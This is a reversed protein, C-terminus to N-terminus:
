FGIWTFKSPLYRTVYRVISINACTGVQSARGQATPSVQYICSFSWVVEAGFYSLWVLNISINDTTEVNNNTCQQFFSRGWTFIPREGNKNLDDNRTCTAIGFGNHFQVVFFSLPPIGKRRGLFKNRYCREKLLWLVFTRNTRKVWMEVLWSFKTFITWSM